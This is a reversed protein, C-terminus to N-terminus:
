LGDERYLRCLEKWNEKWGESILLLHLRRLLNPALLAPAACEDFTLEARLIQELAPEM